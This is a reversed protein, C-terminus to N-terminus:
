GSSFDALLKKEQGEVKDPSDFWYEELLPLIETKVVQKFWSKGDEIELGQPPTVYSHGIQFQKGLSSDKALENNLDVLKQQIEDLTELSFNYNEELWKKWPDGLEPYLDIFAFRRRLAFDVISLSRDAINMTGIVFLNEPIYVTEEDAHSYCLTMSEDPNRKDAELLTLMEGFIQAPNGRNVEEIILIFSKEPSDKAKNIMNMLPGDVLQLQGSGDPRWGRIFDEYSLNPHFQVVQLREKAREKMFAYALRKALWTKGTGPPGQFIINKKDRLRNIFEQLREIEIFCGDNIINKLSYSESRDNVQISDRETQLEGSTTTELYYGSGIGSGQRGAEKLPNIFETNKSLANNSSEINLKGNEVEKPFYKKILKFLPEENITKDKNTFGEYFMVYKAAAQYRRYAAKIKSFDPKKSDDM